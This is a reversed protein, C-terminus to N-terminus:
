KATAEDLEDELEEVKTGLERKMRRLSSLEGEASTSTHSLIESELDEKEQRVRLNEEELEQPPSPLPPSPPPPFNILPASHLEFATSEGGNEM